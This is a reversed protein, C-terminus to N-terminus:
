LFQGLRKMIHDMSFAFGSTTSFRRTSLDDTPSRIADNSTSFVIGLVEGAENLVPSGSNGSIIPCDHMKLIGGKGTAREVRCELKVMRAEYANIQDMVLPYVKGPGTISATKLPKLPLADKLRIFTYDEEGKRHRARGRQSNDKWLIQSCTTTLIRGTNSMKFALHLSDCIERTERQPLYICHTNTVALDPRVLFVACMSSRGSGSTNFTFIRGVAEPCKDQACHISQNNMVLRVEDESIKEMLQVPRSSSEQKGCGFCLLTLLMILSAFTSM